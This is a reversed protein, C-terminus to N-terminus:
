ISVNDILRVKGLRVAGLIRDGRKIVYDVVFGADVLQRNMDETSGGTQLIRHLEPALERDELSLHVNRSSMALGDAERIIPGAIIETPHFFAATMDRVLELQQWDKEGFYARDAQVINLLKLVVTLVGDFHGERHAGELEHSFGTETVRFRYDDHYIDEAKPNIILDAGASEARHTDAALTRPYRELDDPDDYQTPNVFISVVVGDNQNRALEILSLHGAHLAGMTPVFGISFDQRRFEALRLRADDIAEIVDIM